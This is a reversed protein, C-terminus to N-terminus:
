KGRYLGGGVRAISCGIASHFGHGAELLQGWGPGQYYDIAKVVNAPVPNQMFPSLGILLDMNIKYAALSGAMDIVNDAGQTHGV